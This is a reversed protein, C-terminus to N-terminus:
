PGAAYLELGARELQVVLHDDEHAPAAGLAVREELLEADGGEERKARVRRLEDCGHLEHEASAEGAELALARDTAQALAERKAEVLATSRIVHHADDFVRVLVHPALDVVFELPQLIADRVLLKLSHLVLM